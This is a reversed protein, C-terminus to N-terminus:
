YVSASKEWTIRSSKIIVDDDTGGTLECTVDRITSKWVSSHEVFETQVTNGYSLQATVIWRDNNDDFDARIDLRWGGGNPTISGSDFLAFTGLKVFIHKSNANAAFEGALQIEIRDGTAGTQAKNITGLTYQTSSEGVNGRDSVDSALVDKLLDNILSARKHLGKTSADSVRSKYFYVLNGDYAGPETASAENIPFQLIQSLYKANNNNNNPQAGSWWGRTAPQFRHIDYSETTPGGETTSVTMVMPFTLKILPRFYGVSSGVYTLSRWGSINMSHGTLQLAPVLGSVTVCRIVDPNSGSGSGLGMRPVDMYFQTPGSVRFAYDGKVTEVNSSRWMVRGATLNLVHSANGWEGGLVQLDFGGVTSTPNDFTSQVRMSYSTQSTSAFTGPDNYFRGNFTGHGLGSCNVLTATDTRYFDWGVVNGVMLCQEAHFMQFETIRIGYQFKMASCKIMRVRAQIIRTSNDLPYFHFGSANHSVSDALQGVVAINEFTYEANGNAVTFGHETNKSQEITVIGIGKLHLNSAPIHIAASIKYTGSPFLITNSDGSDIAAQIAVTDDSVGDGVAGYDAVSITTSGKQVWGEESQAGSGGSDPVVISLWKTGDYFHFRSEDTIFVMLGTAPNPISDRQAVTMRPILVGSNTSAIDLMASPDPDAGNGNIAVQADSDLITISICFVLILATILKM